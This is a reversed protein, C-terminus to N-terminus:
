ARARTVPGRALSRRSRREGQWVMFALLSLAAALIIKWTKARDAVLHGPTTIKLETAHIDMDGGHEACAANFTGRVEVVDGEHKHDGFIQVQTALNAPLFIAMGSNYGGLVAGEEINKLYYADDNLHLWAYAGRVMVEGIAEGRFPIVQGDWTKPHEVLDASSPANPSATPAQEAMAPAPMALTAVLAVAALLRQPRGAM